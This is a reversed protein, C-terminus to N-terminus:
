FFHMLFPFLFHCVNFLNFAIEWPHFVNDDKNYCNLNCLKQFEEDFNVIFGQEFVDYYIVADKTFNMADFGRRFSVLTTSKSGKWKIQVMLRSFSQRLLNECGTVKKVMLSVHYNKNCIAGM